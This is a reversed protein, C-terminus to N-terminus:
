WRPMVIVIGFREVRRNLEAAIWDETAEARQRSARVRVRGPRPLGETEVIYIAWRGTCLGQLHDAGGHFQRM